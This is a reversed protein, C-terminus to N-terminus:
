DKMLMYRKFVKGDEKVKVDTITHEKRLDSIYKRADVTRGIDNLDKSTFSYGKNLAFMIRQPINTIGYEDLKSRLNMVFWRPASKVAVENKVQVMAQATELEHIQVNGTEILWDVSKEISHMHNQITQQRIGEPFVVRNKLEENVIVQISKREENVVLKGIGKYVFMTTNANIPTSIWNM